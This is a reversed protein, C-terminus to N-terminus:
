LVPTPIDFAELLTKSRWLEAAERPLKVVAPPAVQRERFLYPLNQQRALKRALELEAAGEGEKRNHMLVRGLNWHALAYHPEDATATRLLQEANNWDGSLASVVAINNTVAAWDRILGQARSVAHIVDAGAIDSIMPDQLGLEVGVYYYAEKREPDLADAKQIAAMAANLAETKIFEARLDYHSRGIPTGFRSNRLASATLPSSTQRLAQVLGQYYHAPAYDADLEMAKAFMAYAYDLETAQLCAIGRTVCLAPDAMDLQAARDWADVAKSMQKKYGLALGGDYHVDALDDALRAAMKFKALAQETKGSALLVKGLSDIIHANRRDLRTAWQLEAAANALDDNQALMLAVGLVTRRVAPTLTEISAAMPSDEAATRVLSMPLNAPVIAASSGMTVSLVKEYRGVLKLLAPEVNPYDLIADQLELRAEGYLPCQDLLMWQHALDRKVQAWRDPNLILRPAVEYSRPDMADVLRLRKDAMFHMAIGALAGNVQADTIDADKLDAFAKIANVPQSREFLTLGLQHHIKPDSCDLRLAARYADIAQAPQADDRAAAALNLHYQIENPALVTARAHASSSEGAKGLMRLAAGLNNQYVANTPDLLAAKRYAIVAGDMDADAALVVALGNQIEAQYEDSEDASYRAADRYARTAASLRGLTYNAVGLAQHAQPSTPALDVGKAAHTLAADLVGWRLLATSLSTRVNANQPELQRAVHLHAIASRYLDLEAESRDLDGSGLHKAARVEHLRGGKEILAQGLSEHAPVYGPAIDAAGTYLNIATDLRGLQRLSHGLNVCTTALPHLYVEALMRDRYNGARQEETVYPQFLRICEIYERAAGQLDGAQMLEQGLAFHAQYGDPVTSSPQGYAWGVTTPQADGGAFATAAVLMLITSGLLALVTTSVRLERSLFPM